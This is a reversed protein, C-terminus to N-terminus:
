LLKEKMKDKLWINGSEDTMTQIVDDTSFASDEYVKNLTRPLYRYQPTCPPCTLKHNLFVLIIGTMLLATFLKM